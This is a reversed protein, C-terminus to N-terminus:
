HYHLTSMIKDLMENVDDFCHLEPSPIGIALVLSGDTFISIASDPPLPITLKREPDSEHIITFEEISQYIIFPEFYTLGDDRLDDCPRTVVMMNAFQDALNM